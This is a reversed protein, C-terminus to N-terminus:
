QSASWKPSNIIKRRLVNNGGAQAHTIVEALEQRQEETADEGHDIVRVWIADTESNLKKEAAAIRRNLQTSM